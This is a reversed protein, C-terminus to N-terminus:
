FFKKPGLIKPDQILFNNLVTTCVALQQLLWCDDTQASQNSTLNIVSQVLKTHWNNPVKWHTQVFHVVIRIQEIRDCQHPLYVTSPSRFFTCISNLNLLSDGKTWLDEGFRVQLTAEKKCTHQTNTRVKQKKRKNNFFFM